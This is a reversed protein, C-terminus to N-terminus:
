EIRACPVLRLVSWRVRRTTEADHRPARRLGREEHVTQGGADLVQRSAVM